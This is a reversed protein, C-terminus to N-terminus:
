RRGSEESAAADPGNNRLALTSTSFHAEPIQHTKGGCKAHACKCSHVKLVFAICVTYM